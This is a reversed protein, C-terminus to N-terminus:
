QLLLGFFSKNHLHKANNKGSGVLFGVLTKILHGRSNNVFPFFALLRGSFVQFFQEENKSTLKILGFLVAM